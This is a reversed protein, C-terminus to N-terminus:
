RSLFERLQKMNEFAHGIANIDFGKSVSESYKSLFEAAIKSYTIYDGNITLGEMSLMKLNWASAEELSILDEFNNYIKGGSIKVPYGGIQGNPGPLHCNLDSNDILANIIPITTCATIRNVSSDGNCGFNDFLENTSKLEVDNM